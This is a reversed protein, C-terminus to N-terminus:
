RIVVYGLGGCFVWAVWGDSVAGSGECAWLGVLGPVCCCGGCRRLGVVIGGDSSADSNVSYVYVGSAVSGRGYSLFVVIHVSDRWLRACVVCVEIVCM